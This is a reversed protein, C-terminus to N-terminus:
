KCRECVTAAAEILSSRFGSAELSAVAAITTGGPSCVDDKLEGPHKDSELVMRASGLVSQAVFIYAQERPMGYRVVGDALAEIMMYVFAPSSGSAATVAALLREPVTEVRGFSAFFRYIEDKETESYDDDSWSIGTMGDGVQAPTNPMARVIRVSDGLIGKLNEITYNPALSIIVKEDDLVPQIEQLIDAYYQPKVALIIYKAKEACKSNESLFCVGTSESLTRGKAEDKRSFVLADASFESLCGRLMASGMHGMGIFGFRYMKNM